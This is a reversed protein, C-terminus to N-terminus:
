DRQSLREETKEIEEAAGQHLSQLLALLKKPDFSELHHDAGECYQAHPASVAVIPLATHIRRLHVILESCPMDVMGADLVAGDLLPYKQLTAIAEQSSYATLVNFKATEIVLKRTSISGAYERDIVLFCPRVMRETHTLLAFLSL